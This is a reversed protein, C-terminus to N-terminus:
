IEKRTNDYIGWLYSIALWTAVGVYWGYNKGIHYCSVWKLVLDM